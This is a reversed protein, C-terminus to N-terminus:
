PSQSTPTRKMRVEIVGSTGAMPGFKGADAVNYFEIDRVQFAQINRLSSLGGYKAGDVFVLAYESSDSSRLLPEVGHARMWRPRLRSVADYLNPVDSYFRAIEEGTLINSKSPPVGPAATGSTSSAPACAIGIAVAALYLVRISM